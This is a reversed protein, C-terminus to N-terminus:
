RRGSLVTRSLAEGRIRAPHFPSPAAEKLFRSRIRPDSHNLRIVTTPHDPATPNPVKSTLVLNRETATRLLRSREHFGSTWGPGTSPLYQDRFWKLAVFERRPDSEAQNLASLLDDLHTENTEQKTDSTLPVGNRVRIGGRDSEALMARQGPRPVYSIVAQVKEPQWYEASASSRIKRNTGRYQLSIEIDFGPPILAQLPGRVDAPLQAVEPLTGLASAMTDGLEQITLTKSM